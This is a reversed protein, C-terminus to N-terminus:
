RESTLFRNSRVNGVDFPPDHVVQQVTGLHKSPMAVLALRALAGRKLRISNVEFFNNEEDM